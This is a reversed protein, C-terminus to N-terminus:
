AAKESVSGSGTAESGGSIPIRKVQNQAGARKSLTITLVGNNFV